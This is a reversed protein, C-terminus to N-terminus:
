IGTSVFAGSAYMKYIVLLMGIMLLILKGIILRNVWTLRLRFQTNRDVQVVLGDPGNMSEVLKDISTKVDNFRHHLNEVDRETPASM